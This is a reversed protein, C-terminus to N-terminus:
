YFYPLTNLYFIFSVDTVSHNQPFNQLLIHSKKMRIGYSWTNNKNQKKLNTIYFNLCGYCGRNVYLMLYILIETHIGRTFQVHGTPFVCNNDVWAKNLLTKTVTALFRCYLLHILPLFCLSLARSSNLIDIQRIGARSKELLFLCLFMVTAFFFFFFDM